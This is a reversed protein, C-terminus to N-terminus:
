ARGEDIAAELMETTLPTVGAMRARTARIRELMEDPDYRTPGVHRELAVLAEANLSRRHLEARAKLKDLLEDPIGKLTMTAM